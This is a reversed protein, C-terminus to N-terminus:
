QWPLEGKLYKVARKLLEPSDRFIGIARNCSLCLLGRINGTRHSHDVSLARKFKSQPRKCIGCCGNQKAFMEEYEEITIGYLRKLNLSKIRKKNRERYKKRKDKNNASWMRSYRKKAERNALYYSRDRLARAAM